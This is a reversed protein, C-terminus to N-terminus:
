ADIYLVKDLGEFTNLEVELGKEIGELLGKVLDKDGPVPPEMFDGIDDFSIAMGIMAETM